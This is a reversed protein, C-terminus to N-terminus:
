KMSLFVVKSGTLAALVQSFGDRVEAPLQEIASPEMPAAFQPM